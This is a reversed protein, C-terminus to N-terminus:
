IEDVLYTLIERYEPIVQWQDHGDISVMMILGHGAISKLAESVDVSKEKTSITIGLASRKARRGNIMEKLVARETKGFDKFKSKLEKSKGAFAETTKIGIDELTPDHTEIYVEKVKSEIASLSDSTEQNLKSIKDFYASLNYFLKDSYLGGMLSFGILKLAAIGPFKKTLEYETINSIIDNGIILLLLPIILSAIVSGLYVAKDVEVGSTDKSAVHKYFSNFGNNKRFHGVLLGCSISILLVIGFGIM